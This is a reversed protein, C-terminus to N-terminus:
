TKKLRNSHRKGDKNTEGKNDSDSEEDEITILEKYVFETLGLKAARPQCMHTKYAIKNLYKKKREQVGCFAGHLYGGCGRTCGHKKQVTSICFRCLDGDACKLTSSGGGEKSM